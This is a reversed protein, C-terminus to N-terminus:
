PRIEIQGELKALEFDSVLVDIRVTWRGALPLSLDDIRWTGGSNTAQRRIQEIGAAPNSLVLTVAKADLPSSQRTMIKITANVPGSRGPAIALDAIAKGTHIHVLAPSAGADAMARPPPTFRWLAAVAFVALVLAIEVRISRCLLTTADPDGRKTPKTLRLRNIAALAFLVVLLAFKVLLVQGYATSWLADLNQVQILTLVIGTAILLLVAAPIIKSFRRLTAIADPTRSMLAAGLPVLAGAWFAIGAGHLFVAPRTLWQPDAASAHGSAALAAGVSLFAFFSLAKGAVRGAFVAAVGVISAAAAILATLGYSTSLGTKWVIANFLHPLSQGLADLGQFGVSLPAAVTGLILSLLAVRDAPRSRGGIWNAFFMGGVGIFLSVYLAVKCAWIAARVTWDVTETAKPAVGASAGISFVASGAVPHGDESVVRWSLAYTGTALDAPAEIDLTMDRLVFRDLRVNSGDPRVLNLVLPSVPENFFLMFSKPPAVVVSGDAPEARVLSAHALASGIGGSLVALVSIVLVAIHAMIRRRVKSPESTRM